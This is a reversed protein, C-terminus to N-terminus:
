HLTVTRFREREKRLTEGRYSDVRSKGSEVEGVGSLGRVPESETEETGPFSTCRGHIEWNRGRRGVLFLGVLLKCLKWTQSLIDKMGWFSGEMRGQDTSTYVTFGESSGLSRRGWGWERGQLFRLLQNCPSSFYLSDLCFFSSLVSLTSMLNFGTFIWNIWGRSGPVVHLRETTTRVRLYHSLGTEVYDVFPCNSVYRRFRLFSLLSSYKNSQCRCSNKM